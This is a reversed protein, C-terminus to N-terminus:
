RLVSVCVGQSVDNEKYYQAISSTCFETLGFLVCRNRQDKSEMGSAFLIFTIQYWHVSKMVVEILCSGLTIYHIYLPHTM